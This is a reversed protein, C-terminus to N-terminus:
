SGSAGDSRIQAIAVSIDAPAADDPLETRTTVLRGRLPGPGKAFSSGTPASVDDTEDEAAEHLDFGFFGCLGSVLGSREGPGVRIIASPEAPGITRLCAGVVADLAAVDTHIALHDALLDTTPIPVAVRVDSPALSVLRQVVELAFSVATSGAVAEPDVFECVAQKSLHQQYAATLPAGPQSVGRIGWAVFELPVAALLDVGYLRAASMLARSAADPDTLMRAAPLQELAAAHWFMLPGVHRRGEIAPSESDPATM